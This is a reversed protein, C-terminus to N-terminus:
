PRSLAEFLAPDYEELGTIGYLHNASVWPLWFRHSGVGRGPGGPGLRWHEQQWGPGKLDYQRGPLALMSKTDHLLVRAVDLYHPDKSLNYLKAYSPVAWDLYEDAGGAALATIGQLGVTPVGKKWHLQADDADLPMPLNWIWIWSEAFDAAARARELWRPEKTSDYLSLFAEMSLMGAEKDTINPNDSAGGVFLGRTGWSAWVFEAARVAAQRYKPDGTEETMMVLLPVPSYSTTGSSEEVEDSGPKWRRPFSGDERQQQLLWDVYRKVWALWEPHERGLARERRYARMLARMDETANRLWPALWAHEHPKGTALDYGTAPLPVTPLARIMSAIVALGVQRMKRGRESGDRDGERLLQDACELNKGVFGMAAMTWNWQLQDRVTSLVFPIATRGDITAAQAVLHDTLVRRVLDVDVPTVAPKLTDWAWRWAHRTLDRFSENQGFRFAVQYRHVTDPAIPHYRRFWRPSPPESRNGGYTRITGPFWFGFEVSGDEAQRAGLAGFQFRADTMAPETLKSEEVTTDGRPSPDLVAISAGNAFSLAFLPAPLADERM